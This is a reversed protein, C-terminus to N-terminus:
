QPNFARVDHAFYLKVHQEVFVFVKIFELLVPQNFEMGIFSHTGVHARFVFGLKFDADRFLDHSSDVFM